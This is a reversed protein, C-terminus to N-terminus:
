GVADAQPEYALVWSKIRYIKSMIDVMACVM